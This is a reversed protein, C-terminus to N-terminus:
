YSYQINRWRTKLDLPKREELTPETVDGSTSLHKEWVSGVQRVHRSKDVEFSGVLRLNLVSRM